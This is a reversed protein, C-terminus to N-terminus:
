HWIRSVMVTKAQRPLLYQFAASGLLRPVVLDALEANLHICLLHSCIRYQQTEQRLKKRYLTLCLGIFVCVSLFESLYVCPLFCNFISLIIVCFFFYIIFVSIINAGSFDEFLNWLDVMMSCLFNDTSVM